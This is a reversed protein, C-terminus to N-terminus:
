EALEMQVAASHAGAPEMSCYYSLSISLRLQFCRSGLNAHLRRKARDLMKGFSVPLKFRVDAMSGGSRGDVRLFSFEIPFSWCFEAM